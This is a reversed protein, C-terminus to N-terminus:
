LVHSARVLLDPILPPAEEIRKEAKTAEECDDSSHSGEESNAKPDPVAILKPTVNEEDNQCCLFSFM